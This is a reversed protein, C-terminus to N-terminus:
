RVKVSCQPDDDEYEVDAEQKVDQMDEPKVEVVPYIFELTPHDDQHDDQLDEPQVQVVPDIFVPTQYDDSTTYLPVIESYQIVCSDDTVDAMVTNKADEVTESDDSM